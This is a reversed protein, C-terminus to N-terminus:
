ALGTDLILAPNEVIDRVEDRSLLKTGQTGQLYIEQTIEVVGFSQELVNMIEPIIVEDIASALLIASLVVNTTAKYEDSVVKLRDVASVIRGLLLLCEDYLRGFEEGNKYADKYKEKFNDRTSVLEKSLSDYDATMISTIDTTNISGLILNLAHIASSEMDNALQKREKLIPNTEKEIYIVGDLFYHDILFRAVRKQEDASITFITKFGIGSRDTPLIGGRTFETVIQEELRESIYEGLPRGGDPPRTTSTSSQVTVLPATTVATTAEPSTEPPKTELVTTVLAEGLEEKAKEEADKIQEQLQNGLIVEALTKERASVESVYSDTFYVAGCLSLTCVLFVAVIKIIKM